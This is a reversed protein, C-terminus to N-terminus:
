RGARQALEKAAALYAVAGTSRPDYSIVTQQFSPAESIRINRPIEVNLTENPFYQRVENAVDQSLNTRRDFMTLLITSIILDANLSQQVNNITKMLQTLGELAYYETQIPIMIEKAAVLANLTLLGLSPPCDIVIYDVPSTERSVDLFEQVADHLRYERGDAMVLEIEASSLDVTAPAVRLNKIDPCQQLVSDLARQKTIVDYISPTGTHHEIGLATSANGQPDFDIVIVSLGGEALAAAMNVASTTKGVGGKQNAVTIVRTNSPKKFATAKVERLVERDHALEAGLPSEESFAATFSPPESVAHETSDSNLM